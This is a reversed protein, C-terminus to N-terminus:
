GCPLFAVAGPTGLPHQSTGPHALMTPALDLRKALHRGDEQRLLLLARLEFGVGPKKPTTPSPGLAAVAELWDDDPMSSDTFAELEQERSAGHSASAVERATAAVRARAARLNPPANQLSADIRNLLRKRGAPSTVAVGASASAENYGSWEEIAQLAKEYDTRDADVADGEALLCASIQADLDTSTRGARSILLCPVEDLNGVAVFGSDGAMVAAVPIRDPEVADSESPVWRNLIARLQEVRIPISAASEDVAGLSSLPSVNAGILTRALDWKGRVLMQGRLVQEASVPPRVQYVSVRSHASGMRAVRGVRQDLRAATWPVDLHVVIEADQLNVGESLLDTTLLVDIVEARSPPRRHNALPAFREIADRRSLRGGAVQAGSATLMAVGPRGALRRYLTTITSSYQAFAVIKAGPSERVIRLLHEARVDDILSANRTQELSLKLAASHTKVSDLLANANSTPPALLEPFGLQVSEEVANWAALEAASPYRGAELSAILGIAKALRRHLAARLAAESSAWQHVLGRNILSGGCGADRAPLPPPISMLQTVLDPDDPVDYSIVPEVRPLGSISEGRTDRRVVCQAIEHESLDRARSGLFLSLLTTLDARRNHIPTATLMLIQADRALLAIRRYRRTAPNRAHHAEDLVLLASRLEPPDSRSLQEYTVFGAAIDALALADHWMERLGAPAVILCREFRRAVALAVYTKGMGVEDCLLAGGTKRLATVLREIVSSQHPHLRISGLAPERLRSGLIIRAILARVVAPSEIRLTSDM